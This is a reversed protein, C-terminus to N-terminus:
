WGLDRLLEFTLDAPATVSHTLDDNISPEMLQNRTAIEDWHSITSGPEVPNPTWLLGRGNTYRASGVSARPRRVQTRKFVSAGNVIQNPYRHYLFLKDRDGGGDDGGHVKVDEDRV